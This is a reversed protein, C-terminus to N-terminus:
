ANFRIFRGEFTAALGEERDIGDISHFETGVPLSSDGEAPSWGCSSSVSSRDSSVTFVVAGIQSDAIAPAGLDAIYDRGDFQVFPPGDQM